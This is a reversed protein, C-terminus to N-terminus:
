LMKPTRYTAEDGPGGRNLPRAYLLHAYRPPGPSSAIGTHVHMYIGASGDSPRIIVSFAFTIPCDINPRTVVACLQVVGVDDYM